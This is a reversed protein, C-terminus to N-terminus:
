MQAEYFSLADKVDDVSIEVDWVASGIGKLLVCLIRNGKNKKDQRALTSIREIQDRNLEIKGFVRRIHNMISRLEEETLMSRKWALWGEAVLGVAIAEGHLIRKSESLFHSELAHGITHGANLVKRLGKERPDEETVRAKFAVSHRILEEWDQEKLSRQSIVDWMSGDSILTHKIVEAYGSRLESEPLTSLFGSYLLTFVPKQFVGIHNKFDNFDIGLKGGISADVLSLLTTPVLIFDIGRKYTAACFGGMDGLVGGGLVIAVAHRDLQLATMRDWITVCTNITKQEEGPPIVILDHPPLGPAIRPYCFRNTHEDALVVVRSYGAGSLFQSLESSPDQTFRINDGPM